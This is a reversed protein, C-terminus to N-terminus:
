DDLFAGGDVVEHTPGELFMPVVGLNSLHCAPVKAIAIVVTADELDEVLLEAPFQVRIGGHTSRCLM